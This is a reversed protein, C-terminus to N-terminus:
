VSMNAMFLVTKAHEVTVHDICYESEQGRNLRHVGRTEPSVTSYFLIKHLSIFLIVLTTVFIRILFLVILKISTAPAKIATSACWGNILDSANQSMRLYEEGAMSIIIDRGHFFFWSISKLKFNTEGDANLQNFFDRDSNFRHARSSKINELLTM